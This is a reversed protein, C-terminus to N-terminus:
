LSPTPTFACADLEELQEDLVRWRLHSSVAMGLSMTTGSMRCFSSVLNVGPLFQMFLTFVYKMM